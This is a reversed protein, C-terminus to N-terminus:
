ASGSACSRPTRPPSRVPRARSPWTRRATPSCCSRAPARAAGRSSSASRAVAAGIGTADEPGDAAVTTVAALIALLAEHDRTLPCRLDPYRAFTVLGIRDDRRTRVFASATERAVDLRTRGRDMDQATM